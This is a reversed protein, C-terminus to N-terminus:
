DPPGPGDSPLLRLALDVIEDPRGPRDISAFLVFNILMTATELPDEDGLDMRGLPTLVAEALPVELRIDSDSLDPGQRLSTALREALLARAAEPESHVSSSLAALVARLSDTPGDAATATAVAQIAPVHRTFTGAAVGRVSGFLNM